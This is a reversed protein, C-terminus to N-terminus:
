PVVDVRKLVVRAGKDVHTPTVSVQGVDLMQSPMLSAISDPYSWVPIGEANTGQLEYVIQLPAASLSTVKLRVVGVDQLPGQACAAYPTHSIFDQTLDFRAIPQGNTPGSSGTSTVSTSYQTTSVVCQEDKCAGVALLPAMAVLAIRRRSEIVVREPMSAM